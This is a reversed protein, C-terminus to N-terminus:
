DVLRKLPKGTIKDRPRRRIVRGYGQKSVVEHDEAVVQGRCITMVPWGHFTWGEYLSYDRGKTYHLTKDDAKVRKKLDVIVLDADNGAKIAGKNPIGHIRATATATVEVIRELPIRRKSYGESIMVPLMTEVGSYGLLASWIDGNGRKRQLPSPAHDTGICDIWGEKVGQWLLENHGKTRIPPNVKGLIGIKDDYCNHTLYAPTTELYMEVKRAKAWDVVEKATGVTTHVVYLPCGSIWALFAADIIKMQEVFDPRCDNWAALDNRGEAKLKEMMKRAVEYDECHVMAVGGLQNIRVFSEYLQGDDPHLAGLAEYEPRNMFHKFSTVGHKKVADDLEAIHQATMVGAYYTVDVHAKELCTATLEPIAVNYSRRDWVCHMLTTVGGVAAVGTADEIDEGFSNYIGCHTHPDIAGPLIVRGEANVTKDSRPLRTEKAVKVIRGEDIAVGVEFIGNVTVVKGGKVVLDVTM